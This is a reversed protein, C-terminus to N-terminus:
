SPMRHGYRHNSDSFAWLTQCMPPTTTLKWVIFIGVDLEAKFPQLSSKNIWLASEEARNVAGVLVFLLVNALVALVAELVLVFSLTVLVREVEAAV